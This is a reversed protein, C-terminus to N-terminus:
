IADYNLNLRNQPSLLDDHHKLKSPDVFHLSTSTSNMLYHGVGFGIIVAIFHGSYYDMVILMLGYALLLTIMRLVTKVFM